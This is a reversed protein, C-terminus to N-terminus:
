KIFTAAATRRTDQPVANKNNWSKTMPLYEGCVGVLQWVVWGDWRLTWAQVFFSATM